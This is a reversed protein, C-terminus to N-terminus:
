YILINESKDFGSKKDELSPPTTIPSHGRLSECGRGTTPTRSYKNMTTPTYSYKNMAAREKKVIEM